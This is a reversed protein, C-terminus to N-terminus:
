KRRYREAVTEGSNGDNKGYYHKHVQIQGAGLAAKKKDDEDEDEGTDPKAPAEAERKATAAERKVASRQESLTQGASFGSVGVGSYNAPMRLRQETIGHRQM